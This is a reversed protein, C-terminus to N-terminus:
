FIGTPQVVIDGGYRIKHVNLRRTEDISTLGTKFYPHKCEICCWKGAVYRGSNRPEEFLEKTEQGCIECKIKVKNKEM